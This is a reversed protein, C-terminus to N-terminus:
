QLPQIKIEEIRIPEVSQQEAEILSEQAEKPAHTVFALLAREENTVPVPAPFQPLRPLVRRSHPRHVIRPTEQRSPPVARAAAVHAVPVRAPPAVHRNWLVGAWLLGVAAPIAWVWRPFAWRPGTDAHIRDLIRRELGPRPGPRAYSALADDLLSEINDRDDNSM